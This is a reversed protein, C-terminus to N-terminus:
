DHYGAVIADLTATELPTGATLLFPALNHGLDTKERVQERVFDEFARYVAPHLEHVLLIPWKGKEPTAQFTALAVLLDIRRHRLEPNCLLAVASSECASLLAAIANYGLAERRVSRAIASLDLPRGRHADILELLEAESTIPKRPRDPHTCTFENMWVGKAM